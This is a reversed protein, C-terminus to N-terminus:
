CEHGKSTMLINQYTQEKIFDKIVDYKKTDDVLKFAEKGSLCRNNKDFIFSAMVDIEENLENLILMMDAVKEPKTNVQFSVGITEEVTDVFLMMNEVYFVHETEEVLYDSYITMGYEDLKMSLREVISM